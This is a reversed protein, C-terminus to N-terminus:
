IRSRTGIDQAAKGVLGACSEDSQVYKEAAAVFKEGHEVLNKPCVATTERWEAALSALAGASRGVWGSQASVLATDSEAFASEARAAIESVEVGSKHIEAPDVKLESM